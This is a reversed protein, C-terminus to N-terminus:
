DSHEMIKQYLQLAQNYKAQMVHINGLGLVAGIHNPYVDIVKEFLKQAETLRGQDSYINGLNTLFMINSPNNTIIPIAAPM